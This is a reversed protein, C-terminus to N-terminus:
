PLGAGSAIRTSPGRTREKRACSQEIIRQFSAEGRTSSWLAVQGLAAAALMSNPGGTPVPDNGDIGHLFLRCKNSLGAEFGIQREDAREDTLRYAVDQKSRLEFTGPVFQCEEAIKEHLAQLTADAALTATKRSPPATALNQVIFTIMEVDSTTTSALM